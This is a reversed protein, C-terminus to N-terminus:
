WIVGEKELTELKELLQKTILYYAPKKFKRPLAVWKDHYLKDLYIATRISSKFFTEVADKSINSLEEQLEDKRKSLLAYIVERGYPTLLGGYGEIVEPATNFHINYYKKM